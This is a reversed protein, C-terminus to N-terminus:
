AGGGSEEWLCFLPLISVSCNDPFASYRSERLFFLAMLWQARLRSHRRATVNCMRTSFIQMVKKGNEHSAHERWKTNHSQPSWWLVGCM